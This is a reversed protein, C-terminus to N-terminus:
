LKTPDDKLKLELEKIEPTNNVVRMKNKWKTSLEGYRIM